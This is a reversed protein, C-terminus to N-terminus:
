RSDGASEEAEDDAPRVFITNEVPRDPAFFTVAHAVVAQQDDPGTLQSM